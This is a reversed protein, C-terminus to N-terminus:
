KIVTATPACTILRFYLALPARVAHQYCHHRYKDAAPQRDVRNNERGLVQVIQVLPRVKQQCKEASVDDGHARRYVVREQVTPSRTASIGVRSRDRTFDTFRKEKLLSRSLGTDSGPHDKDVFSTSFPM